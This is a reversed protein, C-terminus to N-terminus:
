IQQRHQTNSIGKTINNANIICLIHAAPDPLLNESIHKNPNAKIAGNKTLKKIILYITSRFDFYFIYRM